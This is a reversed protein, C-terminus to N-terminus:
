SGAGDTGNPRETSENAASAPQVVQDVLRAALYQQQESMSEMVKAVRAIAQTPYPTDPSKPGRGTCLWEVCVGAWTALRIMHELEPLSDGDFWKKVAPQTIDLLKALASQRGRQKLGKADAIEKLREAFALKPDRM